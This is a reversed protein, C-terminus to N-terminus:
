RIQAPEFGHQALVRNYHAITVQVVHEGELAEGNAKRDSVHLELPARRLDYMNVVPRGNVDFAAFLTTRKSM